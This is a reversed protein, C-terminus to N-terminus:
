EEENMITEIDEIALIIPLKTNEHIDSLRKKFYSIDNQLINVLDFITCNVVV